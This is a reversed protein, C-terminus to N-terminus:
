LAVDGTGLMCVRDVAPSLDHGAWTLLCVSGGLRRKSVGWTRRPLWGGWGAVVCSWWSHGHPAVVVLGRPAVVVLGRPAVVVLGRPVVVVLGRGRGGALPGGGGCRALMVVAWSCVRISLFSRSWGRVFAVAWSRIGGEGVFSHSLGRVFVFACSRLCVRVFSSSRGRVFVFVCSHLRVRVFSSSRGRIHVSVPLSSGLHAGGGEVVGEGEMAGGGEMM